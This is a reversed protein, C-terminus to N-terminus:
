PRHWAGHGLGAGALLWLFGITPTLTLADGGQEALWFSFAAPSDLTGAALQLAFVGLAALVIGRVRAIRLARRSAESVEPALQDPWPM